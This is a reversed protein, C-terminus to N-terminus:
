ESGSLDITKKVKGDDLDVNLLSYAYKQPGFECRYFLFPHVWGNAPANAGAMPNTDWKLPEGSKGYRERTKAFFANDANSDNVFAVPGNAKVNRFAHGNARSVSILRVGRLKVAPADPVLKVDITCDQCVQPSGAYGCAISKNRTVVKCHTFASLETIGHEVAPRTANGCETFECQDLWVEWPRYAIEPNGGLFDVGPGDIDRFTCGIVCGHILNNFKIAIGAKKQGVFEGHLCLWKDLMSGNMFIGYEGTNLFRLGVYKNQDHEAGGMVDPDDNGVHLGAFTQDRFTIAYFDQGAIYSKRTPSGIDYHHDHGTLALGVTGGKLTLNAVGAREQMKVLHIPRDTALTTKDPGAGWVGSIGGLLYLPERLLFTGAPIDLRLNGGGVGTAEFAQLDAELKAAKDADKAKKAANVADRLSKVRDTFASKRADRAALIKKVVADIRERAAKFEPTQKAADQKARDHHTGHLKWIAADAEAAEDLLKQLDARSMGYMVQAFADDSPKKGTPDAGAALLDKGFEPQQTFAIPRVTKPADTPPVAPPPPIKGTPKEGAALDTKGLRFTEEDTANSPADFHRGTKIKAELKEVSEPNPWDKTRGGTKLKQERLKFVKEAAARADFTKLFDPTPRGTYPTVAFRLTGDTGHQGYQSGVMWQQLDPDSNWLSVDNANSWTRMAHLVNGKGGEITVDRAADANRPDGTNSGFANIGRLGLQVRECDKLWYVGPGQSSARETSGHYVALDKCNKFVAGPGPNGYNTEVLEYVRTGKGGGKLDFWLQANDQVWDRKANKPDWHANYDQFPWNVGLWLFLSDDVRAEATVTRKGFANDGCIWACNIVDSKIRVSGRNFLAFLDSAPERRPGFAEGPEPGAAVFEVANRRKSPHRALGDTVVQDCRSFMMEIGRQGGGLVVTGGWGGTIQVDDAVRRFDLVGCPVSRPLDIAGGPPLSEALEVLHRAIHEPPADRWSRGLLSELERESDISRVSHEDAVSNVATGLLVVLAGVGFRNM